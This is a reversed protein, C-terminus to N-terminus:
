ALKVKVANGATADVAISDGSKIAADSEASWETDGIKVRGRGAQFDSVAIGQTGILRDMRKNLTSDDPNDERFRALYTRSIFVLAVSVLAFFVLQVRWDPVILSLLLTLIAGVAIWLFDYTGVSMEIGILVVALVLWHWWVIGGTLMEMM